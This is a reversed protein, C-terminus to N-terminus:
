EKNLPKQQLLIENNMLINLAEHVDTKSLMRTNYIINNKRDVSNIANSAYPIGLLRLIENQSIDEEGNDIAKVFIDMILEIAVMRSPLFEDLNIESLKEM